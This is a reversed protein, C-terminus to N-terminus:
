GVRESAQEGTGDTENIWAVLLALGALTYILGSPVWMIVGALQQDALPSLGWSATTTAYGSYWPTEAFTLLAALLVGQMAMTFVLLVGYGYSPRRNRRAGAVVGWFLIATVIFTGHELLHIPESDLAADYPVSGHWFWLTGTHLLWVVGPALVPQIRAPTLGVRRRWGGTTKRISRPLGILMTAPADAVVFLPAAVLLLLVHQVMHASGLAGAAADLPSILAIVLAVLAATFCVRRRGDARGGGSGAGRRFLWLTAGLGILILPDLNWAGWLDHPAAPQGAHAHITTLM